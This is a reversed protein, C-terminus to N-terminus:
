NFGKIKKLWYVAMGINYLPHGETEAAKAKEDDSLIKEIQSKIWSLQSLVDNLESIQAKM